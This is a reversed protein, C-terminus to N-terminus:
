IYIKSVLNFLELKVKGLQFVGIAHQKNMIENSMTVNLPGFFDGKQSHKNNHITTGQIM